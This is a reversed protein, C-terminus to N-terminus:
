DHSGETKLSGAGEGYSHEYVNFSPVYFTKGGQNIYREKSEYKILYQKGVKGKLADPLEKVPVQYAESKDLSADIKIPGLGLELQNPDIPASKVQPKEMLMQNLPYNRPDEQYLAYGGLALVGAGILGFVAANAGQSDKDPSLLVGAAAGTMGGALASYVLTKKLSSCSSLSFITLIIFLTRM